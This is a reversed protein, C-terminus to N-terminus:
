PAPLSESHNLRPPPLFYSKRESPGLPLSKKFSEAKLFGTKLSERVPFDGREPFNQNNKLSFGWAKGKKTEL